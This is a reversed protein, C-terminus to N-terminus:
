KQLMFSKIRLDDAKMVGAAESGYYTNMQNNRLEFSNGDRDGITVGGKLSYYMTVVDLDGQWSLTVPKKFSWDSYGMRVGDFVWQKFKMEGHENHITMWDDKLQTSHFDKESLTNRHLVSNDTENILTFAM